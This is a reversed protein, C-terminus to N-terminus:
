RDTSIIKVPKIPVPIIKAALIKVIFSSIGFLMPAGVAAAAFILITYISIDATIEQHLEQKQRLNNSLEILLDAIQGGSHVGQSILWLTRELEISKIKKSIEMLSEDLTQGAMIRKAAEKLEKELPGFEKRASMLLARDATLGSKMNSAVLQLADPLISEVFKGKSEAALSLWLYVAIFFVPYALLFTPITPAGFIYNANIAIGISLFLGYIVVFGVFSKESLNIDLYDLEKRILKQLRVPVLVAIRDYLM